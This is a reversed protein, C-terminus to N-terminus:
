ITAELAPEKGPISLVLMGGAFATLM